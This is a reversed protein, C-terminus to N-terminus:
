SSPYTSCYEDLQTAPLWGALRVRSSCCCCTFKTGHGTFQRQYTNRAGQKDIEFRWSKFKILEAISLALGVQTSSSNQVTVTSAAAGPRHETSFAHRVLRGRHSEMGRKLNTVKRSSGSINTTDSQLVIACPVNLGLRRGFMVCLNAIREATKIKVYRGTGEPEALVQLQEPRTEPDASRCTRGLEM